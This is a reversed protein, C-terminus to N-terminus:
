APGTLRGRNRCPGPKQWSPRNGRLRSGIRSGEATEQGREGRQAAGEQIRQESDAAVADADRIGRDDRGQLCRAARHELKTGRRVFAAPEGSPLALHESERGLAQIILLDRRPKADVQARDLVVKGLRTRAQAGGVAKVERAYGLIEAQELAPRYPLKPQRRATKAIHGQPNGQTLVPFDGNGPAPSTAFPLCQPRRAHAAMTPHQAGPRGFHALQKDESDSCEHQSRPRNGATHDARTPRLSRGWTRGQCRRASHAAGRTRRSLRCDERRIRTCKGRARGRRSDCSILRRV